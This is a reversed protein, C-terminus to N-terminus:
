INVPITPYCPTGEGLARSLKSVKYKRWDCVSESLLFMPDVRTYIVRPYPHLTKCTIILRVLEYQEEVDSLTDYVFSFSM